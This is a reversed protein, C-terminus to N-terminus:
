GALGPMSFGLSALAQTLTRRQADDLEVLPPRVTAWTRDDAFHAIAGKLAPIM